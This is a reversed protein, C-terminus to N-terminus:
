TPAAMSTATRPPGRMPCGTPWPPSTVATATPSWRCPALGGLNGPNAWMLTTDLPLRFGGGGRPALGLENVYSVSIQSGARVSFTRGPSTPFQTQTGYGWLLTVLKQGAPNVLGIQARFERLKLVYSSGGTQTPLFRNLPDGANPLANVFKPHTSGQLRRVTATANSTVLATSGNDAPLSYTVQQSATAAQVSWASLLSSGTLTAGAGRKLINRRSIM